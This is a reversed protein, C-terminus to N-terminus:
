SDTSGPDEYLQIVHPGNGGTPGGGPQPGPTGSIRCDEIFQGYVEAENGQQRVTQLLFFCGYGLLPVFGHGNVTDTCDGIPLAMVRREYRGPGGPAPDNDYLGDFVRQAYDDHSFNLEDPTTTVQGDEDRQIEVTNEEVVVDPPYLHRNGNMPGNYQGFRTNLGQAVPGVTNGPETEIDEEASICAAHDGAMARRVAAGGQQNDLRVLQFNGPGVGWDGNQTTTKLRQVQDFEYGFHTGEPNAPDGCVMMPALNCADEGPGLPPSPGAVASAAVSKGTIGLASALFQDLPMSAVRARVYRPPATGPSFPYLTASFQVEITGGGNYFKLLEGNGIAEANRLFAARAASAAEATNGTADLTKAGSLATADIANQLRTKNVIAHSVDLALGGAGILAVVGIAAIVMVIGQQSAPGAGRNRLRALNYRDAPLM